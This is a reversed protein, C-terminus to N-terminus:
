DSCFRGGPIVYSIELMAASMMSKAGRGAHAGL